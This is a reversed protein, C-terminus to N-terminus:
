VGRLLAGGGKQHGEGEWGRGGERNRKGESLRSVGGAM